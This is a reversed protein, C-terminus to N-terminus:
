RSGAKSGIQLHMMYNCGDKEINTIEGCQECTGAAFWRNAEAMTQKTGCHACLFQQYIRAGKAIFPAATQMCEKIPHLKM